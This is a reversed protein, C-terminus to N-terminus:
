SAHALLQMMLESTDYSPNVLGSKSNYANRRQVICIVLIIALTVIVTILIITVIVGAIIGANGGGNNNNNIDIPPPDTNMNSPDVPTPQPNQTAGTSPTSTPPIPCSSPGLNLHLSSYICFGRLKMIHCVCLTYFFM